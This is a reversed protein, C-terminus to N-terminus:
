ARVLHLLAIEPPCNFRFRFPGSTGVGATVHLWRRGVRHLGHVQHPEIRDNLMVGGWWPLRWQGGHTHGSLVLEVLGDPLHHITSPLHSLLITMRGNRCRELTRPLDGVSCFSYDTGALNIASGNLGIEVSDNKLFRVLGDDFQEALIAADHNGPAAYCGLRPRLPGLLRRVMAATHRWNCPWECFDGTLLLLDFELAALRDQIRDLLPTWWRFHFDSLHVIRLPAMGM